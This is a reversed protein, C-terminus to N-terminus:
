VARRQDGREAIRGAPGAPQGAPEALRFVREPLSRPRPGDGRDSRRGGAQDAEAVWSRIAQAGKDFKRSLEEPTRGDRALEIMRRRFEAPYRRSKKTM